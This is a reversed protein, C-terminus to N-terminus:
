ARLRPGVGEAFSRMLVLDAEVLRRSSSSVAVVLAGFAEGGRALPVLIINRPRIVDFIAHVRADRTAREVDRREIWTNLRAEGTRIVLAVPDSPHDIRPRHVRALEELV